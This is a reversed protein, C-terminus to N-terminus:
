PRCLMLYDQWAEPSRCHWGTGAWDLLWAGVRAQSM